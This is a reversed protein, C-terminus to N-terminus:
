FEAKHCLNTQQCTYKDGSRELTIVVDFLFSSIPDDPKSFSVVIVRKGKSRSSRLFEFIKSNEFVSVRKIFPFEVGDLIINKEKINDFDFSSFNAECLFSLGGQSNCIEPFDFYKSDQLGLKKVFSSKGGGTRGLVLIHGSSKEIAIKALDEHAFNIVDNNM